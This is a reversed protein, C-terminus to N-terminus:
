DGSNPYVTTFFDSDFRVLDADMKSDNHTAVAVYPQLQSASRINHLQVARDIDGEDKRM